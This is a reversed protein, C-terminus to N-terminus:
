CGHGITHLGPSKAERFVSCAELVVETNACCIVTCCAPQVEFFGAVERRRLTRRLQAAGDADVGHVHFVAKATDLGIMAVSM